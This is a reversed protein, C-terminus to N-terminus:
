AAAKEEWGRGGRAGMVRIRAFSGNFLGKGEDDSKDWTSPAKAQTQNREAGRKKM